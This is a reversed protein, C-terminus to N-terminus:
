HITRLTKLAWMCDKRLQNWSVQCLQICLMRPPLKFGVEEREKTSISSDAVSSRTSYSVKKKKTLMERSYSVKKELSYRVGVNKCSRVTNDSMATEM